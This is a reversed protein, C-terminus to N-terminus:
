KKGTTLEPTMFRSKIDEPIVEWNTSLFSAASEVESAEIQVGREMRTIAIFAHIATTLLAEQETIIGSDLLNRVSNVDKTFSHHFIKSPKEKEM